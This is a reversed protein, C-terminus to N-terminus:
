HSHGQAALAAGVTDLLAQEDQGIAHHGPEGFGIFCLRPTTHQSM